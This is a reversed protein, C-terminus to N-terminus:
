WATLQRVLPHQRNLRCLTVPRPAGMAADARERYDVLLLGADIAAQAMHGLAAEVEDLTVYGAARAELEDVIRVLENV